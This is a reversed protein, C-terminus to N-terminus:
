PKLMDPCKYSVKFTHATESLKLVLDFDVCIKVVVECYGLDLRTEELDVVDVVIASEAGVGVFEDERVVFIGIVECSMSSSLEFAVTSPLVNTLGNAFEDVLAAADDDECFTSGDFM